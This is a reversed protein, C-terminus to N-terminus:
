VIWASSVDQVPLKMRKLCATHPQHRHLAARMTVDGIAAAARMPGYGSYEGVM